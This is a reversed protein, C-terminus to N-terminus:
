HSRISLFPLVAPWFGSGSYLKFGHLHERLIGEARFSVITPFKILGYWGTSASSFAEDPV